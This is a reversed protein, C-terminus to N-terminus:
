EGARRFAIRSHLHCYPLGTEPTGGCFFFAPEGVTGVPWRCRSDNLDSLQCRQEMPILSADDAEPRPKYKDPANAAGIPEIPRIRNRRDIKAPVERYGQPRSADGIKGVGRLDSLKSQVASRGGDQYTEFGGLKEAMQRVTLAEPSTALGVLHTLRDDTWTVGM